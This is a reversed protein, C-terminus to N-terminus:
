LPGKRWPGTIACTMGENSGPDDVQGATEGLINVFLTDGDPSFCAGAFESDNRINVGLEFADGDESLGILRNVNTIGPALPHTDRTRDASGADDECLILGGRPTVTLNDPSDLVELGPSEFTLTLTGNGSRGDPRFEWVQGYGERFGDSNVDGNKADGGSTAVFFISGEDYWCGELRNFKAGGQNFGQNFTSDPDDARGEYTPNPNNIDYWVVRLRQGETQGERTDYRPRGKIGLMQLRGGARLDDRDRPLYRYFGSGRGSGADETQFVVGTQQDVALAEHAFRGMPVIPEAKQSYGPGRRLPVNFVYGHPRPFSGNEPGTVTEECTLWGRKRYSIGGACNVTTGNLSIFDRVLRQTEGRASPDAKPGRPRRPDYDLTVTGGGATEDYRTAPNGQVSGAGPPNRDEHNRILRILRGEDDNRPRDDDDRKGNRRRDDDDDNDREDDRRDRPGSFAAMGDLALPTPFGDSMRKGTYGFTVYEFGRPLALIEQGRQDRMRMLGGYGEGDKGGRKAEDALANRVQLRELATASLLGGGVAASGQIFRRRDFVKM